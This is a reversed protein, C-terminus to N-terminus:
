FHQDAIIYNIAKKIRHVVNVKTIEWQASLISIEKESCLFDFLQTDSFSDICFQYFMTTRQQETSKM